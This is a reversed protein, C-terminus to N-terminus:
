GSVHVKHEWTPSQWVQKLFDSLRKDMAVPDCNKAIYELERKRIRNWLDEDLYLKITKEIFNQEDHAILAEEGDRIQLGQAAVGSLVSPLGYSMAETVKWMTGAGFRIPAVFVRCRDYLERLDKVYGTVAVSNSALRRVSKPPNSGAVIIRCGPIRESIRPLMAKAFHITADDNHAPSSKFGGVFLLDQRKDFPTETPNAVHAHAWVIVKGKQGLREEIIGKEAESVSIVYDASRIISLEAEESEFRPDGGVLGLRRRLQERRHWLAEADYILRAKPNTERVLNMSVLANHPRSVLVIDYANQRLQLLQQMGVGGWLVEVGMRTLIDTEPQKPTGDSLPLLTVRYGLSTMSKVMQFMRPYGSGEEPKPVCDDIVLIPPGGRRDRAKLVNRESFPWRRELAEQHKAVFVRKQKEMLRKAADFSTGSYEIHTAVARPDYVVRFGSAWIRMCLDTDEYYAPSFREDFGGVKELIDRRVILCAASCYDVDRTYCYEPKWPEDGRGYGLSSGDRWVISGAEQLRGDRSVLKAGAAGVDIASDITELLSSICSRDVFADSNLFLIYKGRAVLVGQNCARAFFQNATNRIIVANRVKSFLLSTEDSSANDVIIVEYPPIAAGLLRRLCEYTYHAKNYTVIVVSVLPLNWAAFELIADKTSLFKSLRPSLNEDSLDDTKMRTALAPLASPARLAQVNRRQLPDIIRFGGRKIKQLAQRCFSGLGEETLIRLSATVIKRFEGRSTGEPFLGDMKSAYFKMLKYAFSHRIEQIETRVQDLEELLRGREALGMKTQSIEYTARNLQELLDTREAQLGQLASEREALARNLHLRMEVMGEQMRNLRDRWTTSHREKRPSRGKAKKTPRTDKIIIGLGNCDKHEVYGSLPNQDLFEWIAKNQEPFSVTDHLVIFGGNVVKSGWAQLEKKTQEYSHSTDILLLDIEDDYDKAFELDDKIVLKWFDGLGLKDTILASTQGLTDFTPPERAYESGKGHDVSVVHGGTEAAGIVLACTSNGDRTGLEVIRQADTEAVMAYLLELHEGIDSSTKARELLYAFLERKQKMM